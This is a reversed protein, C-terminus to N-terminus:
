LTYYVGMNCIVSSCNLHCVWPHALPLSLLQSRVRPGVPGGVIDHHCKVSPPLSSLKLWPGKKSVMDCMHQRFYHKQFSMDGKPEAQLNKQVRGTKRFSSAQQGLLFTHLHDTGWEPSPWTSPSGLVPGLLWPGEPLGTKKLDGGTLSHCLTRSSSFM